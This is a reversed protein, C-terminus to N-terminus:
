LALSEEFQQSIQDLPEADLRMGITQHAVVVVQQEMRRKPIEAAAHPMEITHIRLEEIAILPTVARQVPAAVLGNKNIGICIQQM